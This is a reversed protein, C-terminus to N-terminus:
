SKIEEKLSGHKGYVYQTLPSSLFCISLIGNPVIFDSALDRFDGSYRKLCRSLIIGEENEEIERSFLGIYYGAVANRPFRKVLSPPNDIIQEFIIEVLDGEKLGLEEVDGRTM